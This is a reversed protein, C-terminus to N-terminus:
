ELKIQYAFESEKMQKGMWGLGCDGFGVMSPEANAKNILCYGTM